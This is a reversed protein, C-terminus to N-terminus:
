NVNGRKCCRNRAGFLHKIEAVQWLVLASLPVQRRSTHSKDRRTDRFSLRCILKESRDIFHETTRGLKWSSGLLLKTTHVTSLSKIVAREVTPLQSSGGFMQSITAFFTNTPQAKFKLTWMNNFPATLSYKKAMLFGSLSIFLCCNEKWESSWRFPGGIICWDIGAAGMLYYYYISSIVRHRSSIFKINEHCSSYRVLSRLSRTLYLEQWSFMFNM